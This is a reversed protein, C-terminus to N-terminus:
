TFNSILGSLIVAKIHNFSFGAPANLMGSGGIQLCSPYLQHYLPKPFYRILQLYGNQGNSM